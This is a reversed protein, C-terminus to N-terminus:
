SLKVRSGDTAIPRVCDFDRLTLAAGVDGRGVELWGKVRVNITSIGGVLAIRSSNLGNETRVLLTTYPVFPMTLVVEGNAVSAPRSM